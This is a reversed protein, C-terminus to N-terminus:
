LGLNVGFLFKQSIPYATGYDIGLDNPNGDNVEPDQGKYKTITLLNFAQAYIRLSRIGKISPLTYGITATKLRLYSGSQVFFSSPPTPSTVSSNQAFIPLTANPNTPSWTNLSGAALGGVGTGNQNPYEQMAEAYDFIKNGYSGQFFLFTSATGM